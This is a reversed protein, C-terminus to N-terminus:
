KLAALGCSFQVYLVGDAVWPTASNSWEGTFSSGTKKQEAAIARAVVGSDLKWQAEGTALDWAHLPERKESSFGSTMSIVTSGVITPASHGYGLEKHERTWAGKGTAANFAHLSGEGDKVVLIGNGMAWGHNSIAAKFKKSWIAKGTARDLCAISYADLPTFVHLDSVLPGLRLSEAAVEWRITKGDAVSLARLKDDALFYLTGDDYAINATVETALPFTWVKRGKKSISLAFIGKKAGVICLDGVVIAASAPSSLGTKWQIEGKKLDVAFLGRNTGIFVTGNAVTTQTTPYCQQATPKLKWLTKGTRADLAMFNDKAGVAFGDAVVVNGGWEGGSVDYEPRAFLVKPARTFSGEYANQRRPGGLFTCPAAGSEAAPSGSPSRSERPSFDRADYGELDGGLAAEADSLLRKLDKLSAPAAGAWRLSTFVLDSSTQFAHIKTM